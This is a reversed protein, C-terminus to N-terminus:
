VWGFIMAIGLLAMIIGAVLHLYRINRDKWGSVDEVKAIGAYVILTIAVMPLVFILNDLLLPPMAKVLELASLIGGAIVYPGITCPLLFITVFAGVVFAGRPSTVHGIIKKVKPRMFLPMETGVSGPKYSFFDRMNLIGLVIAAGGLIKYLILRISTLAQVLQFFKIIVLGYIIYMIFVSVVFALGALLVNKKKKPNYTLIAILMLTLVAIACPNVADVAALSLIKAMTLEEREEKYPEQTEDEGDHVCWPLNVNVSEDIVIRERLDITVKANSQFVWDKIKIAYDFSRKTGSLPIDQPEIEKYEIGELSRTINNFLLDKVIESDVNESGKVIIRSNAWIKPTGPLNNLNVDKFEIKEGLLPCPHGDIEKIISDADNIAKDGVLINDEDFILQPVGLKSGYEKNYSYLLHANGQEQYIEYEIIVLHPNEQLLSGFIYPDTKACHPCGIGTFYVSCVVDKKEQASASALTTLLMVSLFLFFIKKMIM